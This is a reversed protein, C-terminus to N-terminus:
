HLRNISEGEDFFAEPGEAEITGIFEDWADQESAFSEDRTTSTGHENVIELAWGQDPDVCLINVELRIGDVMYSGSLKSLIMDPDDDSDSM